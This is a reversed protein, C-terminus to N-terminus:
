TVGASASPVTFQFPALPASLLVGHTPSSSGPRWQTKVGPPCFLTVAAVRVTLPESTTGMACLPSPDHAASEDPLEM